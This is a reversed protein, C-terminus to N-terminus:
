ELFEDGLGKEGEVRFKKPILTESMNVCLPIEFLNFQGALTTAPTGLSFRGCM